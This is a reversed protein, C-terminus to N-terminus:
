AIMMTFSCFDEIEMEELDYFEEDSGEMFVEQGDIEDGLFDEEGLEESDLFALVQDTTYREATM